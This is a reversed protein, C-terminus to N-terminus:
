MVRVTGTGKIKQKTIQPNGKYSVDGTGSIEISLKDIANVQMNGRGKIKCELQDTSLGAADIDGTGAIEYKAKRVQGAIDMGGAGELKFEAKEYIANDVKLRGTGKMEVKLDDGAVPGELTINSAGKSEIYKLSPSNTYIVFRNPNISERAKIQLTHGKVKIDALPIINDDAEVELFAADDPKSTYIVDIAGEVKIEDYIGVSIEHKVATGASRAPSKKKGSNGCAPWIMVMLCCALMWMWQKTKM